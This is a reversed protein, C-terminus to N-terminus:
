YADAPPAPPPAFSAPVTFQMGPNSSMKVPKTNDDKIYGFQGPDYQYQGSRNVLSIGGESVYVHLGPPLGGPPLPASPVLAIGAGAPAAQQQETGDLYELIFDTGRIGIEASPTRIFFKEKSRKGLLGTVSRMGGKLLQFSAQDDAQKGRAFAFQEVVLVTSPKLTIESSDILRLLAYAGAQTRLTDGSEVESKVALPKLTGDPKQAVMAGSLQVVTGAVPGAMASPVGYAAALAAVAALLVRPAIRVFCRAARRRTHAEM